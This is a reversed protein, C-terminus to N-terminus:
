GLQTVQAHKHAPVELASSFFCLFSFAEELLALFFFDFALLDLDGGILLFVLPDLDFLLEEVVLVRLLDLIISEFCPQVFHFCDLCTYKLQACSGM